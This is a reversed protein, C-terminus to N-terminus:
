IVSLFYFNGLSLQMNKMTFEEQKAIACPLSVISNLVRLIRLDTSSTQSATHYANWRVLYIKTQFSNSPLDKGLLRASMQGSLPNKLRKRTDRSPIKLNTVQLKWETKLKKKLLM